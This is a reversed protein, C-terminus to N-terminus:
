LIGEGLVRMIQAVIVDPRVDRPGHLMAARICAPIFLATLEPHPDRLERQRVGRRITLEILKVLQQRQAELAKDSTAPGVSRILEFLHPHSAAFGVMEKVIRRLMEWASISEDATQDSLQTLLAAVGDRMLSLLLDDKSAFYLYVTGKGVKAAAAVDDLRVEHYPRTAFLEAAAECIAARKNGDLKQM